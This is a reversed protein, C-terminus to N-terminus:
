DAIAREVLAIADAEARDAEDRGRYADRVLEAIATREPEPVLPVPLAAVLDPQLDQQKSGVSASRLLRFATESRLFAFLYAGSVEPDATVVRLFHETFAYERWAGTVFIPRAFVENEGLTGQAAVLISEDPVMVGDPTFSRSIWRGEPQLWFGQKQGVLRVASEHTPDADIRKFRPGRELMGGACIEGLTMHPVDRLSALLRAARPNFNLARLTVFDSAAAEFGLDPGQQHWEHATIDRLGVSAFLRDTAETLLAQFRARLDAAHQVLRHAEGEIEDGLRPVPLDAIHKPELHQIISGYTGSTVMPAGFRSALFSFLYGPPIKGADPVVKLVDQSGWIGVMDPRAYVTRGITGSCSILTMGPEIELYSLKASHADDKNLLSLTTLDALLMPSATMFPVGHAPDQVYVRKFMPGNYLGGDHGTTLTRLPQKAADLRELAIEAEVSGNIFTSADLRDDYRNIWASTVPRDPNTVRM